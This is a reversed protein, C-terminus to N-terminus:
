FTWRASLRASRPEMPHVHRGDIGGGCAGSAVEGATCSAYAYEIDNGKKGAINFV